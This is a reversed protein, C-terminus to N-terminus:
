RTGPTGAEIKLTVDASDDGILVGSRLLWPKDATLRMSETYTGSLVCATGQMESCDAEPIDTDTDTDTDTDSDADTDADSEDASDDDTDNCGLSPLFGLAAALILRHM